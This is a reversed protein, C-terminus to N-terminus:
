HGKARFLGKGWGEKVGSGGVEKGEETALVISAKVGRHFPRGLTWPEVNVDGPNLQEDLVLLADLLQTLSRNWAHKGLLWLGCLDICAGHDHWPDLQLGGM